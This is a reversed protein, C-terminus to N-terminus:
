INMAAFYGGTVAERIQAPKKCDGISEFEFCSERLADTEDRRARMGAAYIITDADLEYTGDANECTVKGPAIGTCRTDTRIEIGYKEIEVNMAFGHMINSGAAYRSSMELVIPTKGAHAFEIAAEIGSLGGGIIVVRNGVPLRHMYTDLLGQAHEIGPIPPIVPDAGIAAILHDPSIERVLEPTVTVGLRVEISGSEIVQRVLYERYDDMDKKFSIDKCYRITGGLENEKECLIVHHGRKAATLAAQMGGPGGGAILVTKPSTAPLPYFHDFARGIEPNVSCYLAGTECAEGLCRWCRLCPRIDGTNGHRAKEPLLPDAILARGISVLDARGHAIIDEMMAPDSIAGVTVVPTKVHPKIMAAYKVNVGHELFMSPHTVMESSDFNNNGASVHILDVKRDLLKAFEIADNIDIGPLGDPMAEDGSLRVEIPFSNGCYKRIRDIVMLTIRARNEISGGFRDTRHNWFPSLFQGLFWGHGAHIMVMDFGADKANRASIGFGDVVEEIMEETMELVHGGNDREYASASWADHGPFAARIGDHNLEINAYAGYRHIEDTIDLLYPISSRMYINVKNDNFGETNGGPHVISDGVTVVSAGGCARLRYFLRDNLSHKHEPTPSLDFLSIPSAMIRNKLTLSGIRIPSFLNPYYENM